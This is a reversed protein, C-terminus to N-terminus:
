PTYVNVQGSHQINQNIYGSHQVNVTRPATAAMYNSYAISNARANASAEMEQGRYYHYEQKSLPHACGLKGNRIAERKMPEIYKLNLEVNNKDLGQTANTIKKAIGAEVWGLYGIKCNLGLSNNHRIVAVDRTKNYYPSRNTYAGYPIRFPKGDVFVIRKTNPNFGPQICGTFLFLTGIIAIVAKTKM